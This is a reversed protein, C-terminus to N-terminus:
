DAPPGSVAGASDPAREHAGSSSKVAKWRFYQVRGAALDQYLKSGRLCFAEEAVPLRLSRNAAQLQARFSQSRSVADRAALVNPTIEVCAEIALGTDRLHQAMTEADEGGEEFSTIDALLFLGGPRLVRAVEEFFRLRSPYCHSSEVSVAVDISESAFPLDLADAQAFRLKSGQHNARCWAILGKSLDVATLLGPHRTGALHASGAGAGCGIEVVECGRLDVDDLVADYLRKSVFEAIDADGEAPLELEDALYGWNMFTTPGHEMRRSALGYFMKWIPRRLRRSLRSDRTLAHLAALNVQAVARHPRSAGTEVGQGGM